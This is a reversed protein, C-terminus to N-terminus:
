DSLWLSIASPAVAHEIMPFYPVPIQAIESEDAERLAIIHGHELADATLLRKRAKSFLESFVRKNLAEPGKTKFLTRLEDTQTDSLPVLCTLRIKADPNFAVLFAFATLKEARVLGMVLGDYWEFIETDEVKERQKIPM